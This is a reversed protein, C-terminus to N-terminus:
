IESQIASIKKRHQIIEATSFAGNFFGGDTRINSLWDSIFIFESHNSVFQICSGHYSTCLV